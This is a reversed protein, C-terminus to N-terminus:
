SILYIYSFFRNKKTIITVFAHKLKNEAIGNHPNTCRLLVIVPKVIKSM